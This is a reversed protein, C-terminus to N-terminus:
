RFIAQEKQKGELRRQQQVLKLAYSDFRYEKPTLNVKRSSKLDDLIEEAVDQAVLRSTEKTSRVVYKKEGSLWAQAYWYPSAGTKYLSLGRRIVKKHTKVNPSRKSM